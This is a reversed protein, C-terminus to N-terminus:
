ATWGVLHPLLAIRSRSFVGWSDNLSTIACAQAKTIVEVPESWALKGIAQQLSQRAELASPECNQYQTGFRVLVTAGRDIEVEGLGFRTHYVPTGAPWEPQRTGDM